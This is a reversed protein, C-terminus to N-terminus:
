IRFVKVYLSIGFLTAIFCLIVNLAVNFLAKLFVGEQLMVVTEYSFTSFTTLAGLLGTVVLAKWEPSIMDEFLMVLFGILLSGLVNVSLTGYPFFSGFIRQVWGSIIFRLVAGIFGGIGIYLFIL